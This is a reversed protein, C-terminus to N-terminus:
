LIGNMHWIGKHFVKIHFAYIVSCEYLRKSLADVYEIANIWKEHWKCMAWNRANISTKCGIGYVKGNCKIFEIDIECSVEWIMQCMDTINGDNLM